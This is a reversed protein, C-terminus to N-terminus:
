PGLVDNIANSLSQPTIEDGAGDDQRLNRNQEIHLWRSGEFSMAANQCPEPQGNIYRGLTNTTGCLLKDDGPESCSLSAGLGAAAIESNLAANLQNVPENGDLNMTTGASLRAVIDDANYNSPCTTSGCGHLQLTTTTANHDHVAVGFRYFFADVNHAADSVKYPGAAGCASTTGSCVSNASNACRHSTSVSLFRAGTERMVQTSEVHTGLDYLPHPVSIHHRAASDPDVCFFGQGRLDIEQLCYLVNNGAASDTFRVVEFNLAGASAAATNVDQGVLSAVVSDFQNLQAASPVVYGESFAQVYSVSDTIYRSLDATVDRVNSGTPPIPPASGSNGGGGCGVLMLALSAIVPARLTMM